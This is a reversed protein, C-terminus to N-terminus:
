GFNAEVVGLAGFDARVTDGRAPINVASWSLATGILPEPDGVDRCGGRPLAKQM